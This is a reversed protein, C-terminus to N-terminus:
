TERMRVDLVPTGNIWVSAATLSPLLPPGNSLSHPATTPSIVSFATPASPMPRACVDAFTRVSTSRRPPGAALAGGTARVGTATVGGADPVGRGAVVGPTLLWVVLM